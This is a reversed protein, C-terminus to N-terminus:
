EPGDVAFLHFLGAKARTEEYVLAAIYCHQLASRNPHRASSTVAVSISDLRTPPLASIYALM